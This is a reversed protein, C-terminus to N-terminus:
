QDKIHPLLYKRWVISIVFITPDHAYTPGNLVTVATEIIQLPIFALIPM